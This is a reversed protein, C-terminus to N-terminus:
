QPSSDPSIWKTSNGSLSYPVAYNHLSSAGGSGVVFDSDRIGVLGFSGGGYNWFHTRNAVFTGSAASVASNAGDGLLVGTNVQVYNAETFGFLGMYSKYDVQLVTGTSNHYYIFCPRTVARFNVSGGVVAQIAPKNQTNGPVHWMDVDTLWLSAQRVVIHANQPFMPGPKGTLMAAGLKNQKLTLGRLEVTAGGYVQIESNIIATIPGVILMDKRILVPDPDDYIMGAQLTVTGHWDAADILPQLAERAECMCPLLCFFLVLIRM